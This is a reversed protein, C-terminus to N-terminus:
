VIIHKERVRSSYLAVLQKKSKTTKNLFVLPAPSRSKKGFYLENFLSLLVSTSGLARAFVVYYVLLALHLRCLVSCRHDM